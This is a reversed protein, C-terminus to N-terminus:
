MSVHRIYKPHCLHAASFVALATRLKSNDVASTRTERCYHYYEDDDNNNNYM